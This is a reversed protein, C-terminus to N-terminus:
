ESGCVLNGDSRGGEKEYLEKLFENPVIEVLGPVAKMDKVFDEWRGRAKLQFYASASVEIRIM